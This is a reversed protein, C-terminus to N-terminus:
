GRTTKSTVELRAGAGTSVFENPIVSSNLGLARTAGGRTGSAEGQIRSVTGITEQAAVRAGAFGSLLAMAIIAVRHLMHRGTRLIMLCTTVYRSRAGM